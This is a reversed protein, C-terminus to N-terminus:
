KGLLAVFLFWRGTTAGVNSLCWVEWANNDENL